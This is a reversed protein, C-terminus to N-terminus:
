ENVTFMTSESGGFDGSGQAHVIVSCSLRYNGVINGDSMGDGYSDYITFTYDGDPLNFNYTYQAPAVSGSPEGSPCDDYDSCQVVINGSSDTIEWNREDAYADENLVLTLDNCLVKKLYSLTTSGNNYSAIGDELALELVLNFTALDELNDFNDFTVSVTGEYENAPIILDGVVYDASSGTSAEENVSVNFSRESTSVTTIQVPVTVTIGDEPVIVSTFSTLFSIGTQGNVNDYLIPDVNEDCSFATCVLLLIVLKKIKKM